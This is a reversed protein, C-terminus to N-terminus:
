NFISYHEKEVHSHWMYYPFSSLISRAIYMGWILHKRFTVRWFDLGLGFNFNVLSLAKNLYSMTPMAELALLVLVIEVLFAPSDCYLVLM